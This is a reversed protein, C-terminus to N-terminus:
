RAVHFLLKPSIQTAPDQRVAKQADHTRLAALFDDDRVRALAASRARRARGPPHAVGRRVQHIVDQGVDRHPLPHQGRRVFSPAHEREAGSASVACPRM